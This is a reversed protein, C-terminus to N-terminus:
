KKKKEPQTRLFDKMSMIPGINDDPHKDKLFQAVDEMSKLDSDHMVQVKQGSADLYWSDEDTTYKHDADKDKAEDIPEGAHIHEREKKYKKFYDATSTKTPVPVEDPLKSTKKDFQDNDGDVDRDFNAEAHKIEHKLGLNPDIMHDIHYKHGSAKHHVPKANITPINGVAKDSSSENVFELFSEKVVKKTGQKHVDAIKAALRASFHPTRTPDPKPVQAAAQAQQQKQESAKREAEHDDLHNAIEKKQKHKLKDSTLKEKMKKLAADAVQKDPSRLHGRLTSNDVNKRSIALLKNHRQPDIHEPESSMAAELLDRDATRSTIGEALFSNVRAFGWQQPTSGERLGSYWSAVGRDFVSRIIDFSVNSENCKRQLTSLELPTLTIQVEEAINSFMETVTSILNDYSLGEKLKKKPRVPSLSISKFGTGSKRRGEAQRLKPEVRKAIRSIAGKRRAVQRDVAARSAYSLDNYNRGRLIRKRMMKIAIRRSRKRITKNNAKRAIARKQGMRIKGKSRRMQSRRKLRQSLSLVAEDIDYSENLGSALEDYVTKAVGKLRSPLGSKFAAFDGDLVAKRMKSASMGGVGEEDPDREGASVVKISNYKYEKGNYQEAYRKVKEVRDSGVVIVVDDFQDELYKLIGLYGSPMMNKPTDKVIPFAMKAFKSKKSYPLPNKADGETRSLYLRPVAGISKAQSEIAKVLKEHGITPPNMRGFSFVVTRGSAREEKIGDARTIYQPKVNIQNPTDGGITKGTQPAFGTEEPKEPKIKDGKVKKSAVLKGTEQNEPVAEKITEIFSKM